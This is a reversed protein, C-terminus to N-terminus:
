WWINVSYNCLTCITNTARKLGCIVVYIGSTSWSWHVTVDARKFDTPLQYQHHMNNLKHMSLLTHVQTVEKIWRSLGLHCKVLIFLWFLLFKGVFHFHQLSIFIIISFTFKSHLNYPRVSSIASRSVMATNVSGGNSLGMGHLWLSTTFTCKRVYILFTAAYLISIGSSAVGSFFNVRFSRKSSNWSISLAFSLITSASGSKFHLIATWWLM